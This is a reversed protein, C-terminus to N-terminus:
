IVDYNCWMARWSHESHRSVARSRVWAASWQCHQQGISLDNPLRHAVLPHVNQACVRFVTSKSDNKGNIANLM